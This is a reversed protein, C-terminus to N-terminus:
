PSSRTLLHHAGWFLLGFFVAPRHWWNTFSNERAMDWALALVQRSTDLKVTVTVTLGPGPERSIPGEELYAPLALKM